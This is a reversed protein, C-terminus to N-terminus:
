TSIKKGSCKPYRVCGFFEAYPGDRHVLWGDGCEPCTSYAAGCSCIKTELSSDGAAPLDNGCAGCSPLWQDCLPRHECHFYPRGNRGNKKLIRGGCAGCQMDAVGPDGTEITGYQPDDALERVFVSPKTRDALITVSKRARTLAVYFLRREEAHDFNEPEPLVLDLLPDDVIESPFGMTGAEAKLIIVHDAELGKSRHVTKFTVSLNPFEAETTEINPPRRANYRGLLLVSAQGCAAASLEALSARLAAADQGYEHLALRIAPTDTGAAAVVQKKIQSPNRLVFRRAPLAIRDVSRFTRGLDIMSHVGRESGMSGGFEKGFDHMLRIDSGAFRFISQWDDGVAFLRADAHQAKLARLLRARGESIDQFEDVVLHRFPSQYRGAEVHGAARTIMDEFDIQDGLREEYASLVKEFIKLFARNRAGAQGPACRSRCQDLSAGSGKFHRLFTALTQTFADIQGLESLREFLQDEPVPKPEVYLALKQRLAELLRGEVNEFSYTQVLITGNDRHVKRKWEMEELYRERDVQPATELRISGDPACSNRVGFHEIYVGSQTLRFDPRYTGRADAPLPYEPEYEHEIGNRYLWNSILLEEFSKVRYGALSRLEHARVWQYYEALTRFDWASAYPLLLGGFWDLLLGGMAAKKAVDNVLIDRLLARLGKDDSAHAALPPARGEVERIIRNGLAHFTLADVAAGSHRRIRDTMEAAADKGFALLLIEEPKRIGREILYAAKSVIVGTKGSGAGALVLTADEDTVVARRQEPTLPNREITDFFARMEGIEGKVFVEVAARRARGPDAAFAVVERLLERQSEPLSGAHIPLVNAAEVATEVFPNFLCAAPYRDPQKLRDIVPALALLQEVSRAHAKGALAFGRPSVPRCREAVEADRRRIFNSLVLADALMSGLLALGIMLTTTNVPTKGTERGERVRGQPGPMRPAAVEGIGEDSSQPTNLRPSKQLLPQRDPNAEYRQKEPKRPTPAELRNDLLLRTTTSDPQGTVPIGNAEQFAAIAARTRPGELGDVPGADYGYANLQIQIQRVQASQAQSKEPAVAYLGALILIIRM